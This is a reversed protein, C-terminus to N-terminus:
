RIFIVAEYLGVNFLKCDLLDSYSPMVYTTHYDVDATRM